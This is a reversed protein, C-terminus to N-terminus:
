FLYKIIRNVKETENTTQVSELYIQLSNKLAQFFHDKKSFIRSFFVYLLVITFSIKEIVPENLTAAKNILDALDNQVKLNTLFQTTSLSDFM